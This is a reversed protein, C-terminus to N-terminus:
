MATGSTGPSPRSSRSSVSSFYPTFSQHAQLSLHRRDGAAGEADAARRSHEEGRLARRHREAVDLDAGGLRDDLLDELAAAAGDGDAHVHAIGALHLGVDVAHDGLVSAEIDHEGVCADRVRRREELMGLRLPM